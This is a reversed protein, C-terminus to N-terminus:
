KRKCCTCGVTPEYRIVVNYETSYPVDSVTFELRASEHGKVFGAGTWTVPKDPLRERAVIETRQVVYM